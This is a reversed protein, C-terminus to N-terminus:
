KLLKPLGWIALLIAGGIMLYTGIQSQGGFFSGMNPIASSASVPQYAEQNTRLKDRQAQLQAESLKYNSVSTWIKGASTLIDDVQNSLWDAGDSFLSGIGGTGTNLASQSTSNGEIGGPNYAPM